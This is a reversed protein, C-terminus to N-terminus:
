YRNFRHGILAPLIDMAFLSFDVGDVNALKFTWFSAKVGEGLKRKLTHLDTAVPRIDYTVASAAKKNPTVTLQLDGDSKLAAYFYPMRAPDGMSIAPTEIYADIDTGDDTDGGLTFLGDGSCGYVEGDLEFFSNFPYNTRQTTPKDDLPGLEINTIQTLM